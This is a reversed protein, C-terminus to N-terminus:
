RWRVPVQGHIQKLLHPFDLIGSDTNRPFIDTIYLSPTKDKLAIYTYKSNFFYAFCIQAFGDTEACTKFSYTERVKTM